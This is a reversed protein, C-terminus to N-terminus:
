NKRFAGLREHHNGTALVLEEIVGVFENYDLNELLFSSTMLVMGDAIGYAGHLM